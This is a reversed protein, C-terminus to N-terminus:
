MKVVIMGGATDVPYHAVKAQPFDTGQGTKVNFRWGHWPCTVVDGELDGDSLPGARHPCADDIAHFEGAVNFVSIKKGNLVVCKKQGPALDTSKLNTSVDPM